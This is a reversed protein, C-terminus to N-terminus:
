GPTRNDHGPWPLIWRPVKHCYDDYQEGFLRRLAPEEYCIVFLHFAGIVCLLYVVIPASGYLLAQGLIVSSVAVYMPNRTFRYLGGVVLVRPSDIPAPTGLGTAAFDWACWLYLAAGTLIFLFGSFSFWSGRILATKKLVQPLLGCVTGPVVVTFVATKSLRWFM